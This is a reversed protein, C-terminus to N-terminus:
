SLWEQAEDCYSKVANFPSFFDYFLNVAMCVETSVCVSYYEELKGRIRRQIWHLLTKKNNKKKSNSKGRCSSEETKNKEEKRGCEASQSPRQPKYLAQPEISKPTSFIYRGSTRFLTDCDSVNAPTPRPPWRQHADLAESVNLSPECVVAPRAADCRFARLSPSFPRWQSTQPFPADQWFVANSAM